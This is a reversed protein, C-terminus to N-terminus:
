GMDQVLVNLVVKQLVVCHGRLGGAVFPAEVTKVIVLVSCRRPVDPWPTVHAEIGYLLALFISAAGFM